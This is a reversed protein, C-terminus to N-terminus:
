GHAGGPLSDEIASKGLGCQRLLSEISRGVALVSADAMSTGVISVGVPLAGERHCPLTLACGDMLNVIGPNRLVRANTSFFADDDELLPEALPAVTAVTPMIWADFDSLRRQSAGIFFERTKLLEIYDAALLHEGKRIRALVRPDYLHASEKIHHRHWGWAQAATIGAQPALALVENLEPFDFAVISVGADILRRIVEYFAAHTQDDTEDVVGGFLVGIRLSELARPSTDLVHSSIVSDAAVCCDVSQAIAGVSDFAAALPLVGDLPVRRATPKFATLGCFAAPIRLSGGTDTGLSWAVHGLAVSVAAGSSSGGAVRRPDSPNRATGCYPNLGLGSYAFESMNTRGVFVAGADRLRSIVVADRTAPRAERLVRSGASTVEGKVDFLDKISVPLGAISSPVYGRDRLADSTKAAKRASERNVSVYVADHDRRDRAIRELSDDLLGSATVHGSSLVNQLAKIM